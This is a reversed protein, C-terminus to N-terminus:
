QLQLRTHKKTQQSKTSENNKKESQM